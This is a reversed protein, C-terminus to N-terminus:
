NLQSQFCAFMSYGSHCLQIFGISAAKLTEELTSQEKPVRIVEIDPNAEQFSSIIEEQAKGLSGDVFTDWIELTEKEDAHVEVVFNGSIITALALMVALTRKKM